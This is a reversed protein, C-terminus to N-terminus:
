EGRDAPKIFLFFDTIEIKTEGSLANEWGNIQKFLYLVVLNENRDTYTMQDISVPNENDLGKHIDSVIKVLDANYIEDGRDFIQLKGTEAFYSVSLYGATGSCDSRGSMSFDCFYDYDGIDILAHNDPLRYHFYNRQNINRYDYTYEFGFLKEMEETTFGEPLCRLDELSHFRDFYRIIASIERKDQDPLNESARVIGGNEIMENKQLLNEFRTNQSLMSVSYASWPGTVSLAAVVALLVPLFINRVKRSFAYYLMSGTVWLGAAIVFYRNETIGYADIRIGMAVFMMVLLPIVFKPFYSTFTSSWGNAKRLPYILFLVFVGVMSYWLVLHSVMGDPWQRTLIIKAFYVYLITSYAIILPMVIYLVLVKIVKPYGDPSLKERHGPIDALFYAPAFVGAAILWIDLYLKESIELSFLTDVTFLMASLGLFLVAAYLFTIFFDTFLKIVYLEYNAKKYFYPIFAFALYFAMSLATYRTVSVMEFDQLLFVGYLLLGLAAGAYFYARVAGKLPPIREFMTKLCLSLPIGLALVMATRRLMDSTETTLDRGFHNVYILICVVSAALLIAEPFRKLSSLLKNILSKVLSTIKDKM